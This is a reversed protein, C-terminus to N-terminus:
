TTKKKSEKFVCMTQPFFQKQIHSSSRRQDAIGWIIKPVDDAMHSEPTTKQRSSIMLAKIRQWLKM